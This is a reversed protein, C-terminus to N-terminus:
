DIIWALIIPFLVLIAFAAVIVALIYQWWKM